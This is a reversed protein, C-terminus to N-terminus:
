SKNFLIYYPLFLMFEGKVGKLELEGCGCELELLELENELELGLEEDLEDEAELLKLIREEAFVDGFRVKGEGPEGGVEGREEVLM